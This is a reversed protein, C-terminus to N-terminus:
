VPVAQHPYVLRSVPYFQLTEKDQETTNIQANRLVEVFCEDLVYEQGRKMQIAFGNVAMCVDEKGDETAFIKVRYKKGSIKQGDLTLLQGEPVLPRKSQPIVNKGELMARMEDVTSDRSVPLGKDKCENFLEWRDTM